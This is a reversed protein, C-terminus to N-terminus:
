SANVGGDLVFGMQKLIHGVTESKGSYRSVTTAVDHTMSDFEKKPLYRSVYSLLRVYPAQQRKGIRACYLREDHACMNRAKVILNLGVRAEHTGFYEGDGTVKTIRKCVEMQEKPKMLNFFHEINGFTMDNVLVWIPVGGHNERYHVICDRDSNRAKDHMISQLKQLDDWYHKLGFKRYEAETAFASQNLYDNMGRHAEAFTYACTTRVLAEVRLLYHFTMERLDRDFRFLSYLDYFTTGDAFQDCGKTNTAEIDLFPDKYGNVVQYYGERLLVQATREDTGMGRSELLEVQKEITLFPKERRKM